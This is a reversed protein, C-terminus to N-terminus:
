VNPVDGSPYAPQSEVSLRTGEAAGAALHGPHRISATVVSLEPCNAIVCEGRALLTAALIPLVSNKAGHINVCGSLSRGGTILDQKM